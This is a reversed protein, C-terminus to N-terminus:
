GGDKGKEKSGYDGTEKTKGKCIYSQARKSQKFRGLGWCDNIAAGRSGKLDARSLKLTNPTAL